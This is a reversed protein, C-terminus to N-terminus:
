KPRDDNLWTIHRGLPGILRHYHRRELGFPLAGVALAANAISEWAASGAATAAYNALHMVDHSRHVGYVIIASRAAEDRIAVEEGSQGAWHRELDAIAEPTLTQIADRLRRLEPTSLIVPAYKRKWNRERRSPASPGTM